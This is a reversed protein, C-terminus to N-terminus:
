VTKILEKAANELLAEAIDSGYTYLEEVKDIAFNYYKQQDIVLEESTDYLTQVSMNSGATYTTLSIDHLFSLLRLRDGFEKIEGEYQNNTVVPTIANEYYKRLVSRHFNIGFNIIAM